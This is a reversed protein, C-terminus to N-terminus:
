VKEVNIEFNLTKNLENEPTEETLWIHLNELIEEKKDIIGSKLIFYKEGNKVYNELTYLYREEELNIKIYKTDIDSDKNIKMYIYYLKKIEGNNKLHIEINNNEKKTKTIKELNNKVEIELKEKPNLYSSAIKISENDFTDWIFYTTIIVILLMISEFITYFIIKNIQM